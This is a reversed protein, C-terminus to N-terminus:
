AAEPTKQAKQAKQAKAEVEKEWRKKAVEQVTRWKAVKVGGKERLAELASENLKTIKGGPIRDLVSRIARDVSTKTATRGTMPAALEAVEPGYLEGMVTYVAEPVLSEESKEISALVKGNELPVPAKEAYERVIGQLRAVLDEAAKLKAWASGAREPTLAGLIGQELDKDSVVLEHLLKTKSPCYPLAPCFKCWPGEHTELLKDPGRMEVEARLVIIRSMVKALDAEYRDLEGPGLEAVDFWPQGDGDAPVRIVGLKVRAKGYLRAAGLAYSRLQWNEAAPSVDGHGSKYDYVVAMDDLVAHTDLTMPIETPGLDGYQRDKVGPLVRATKTSFDYAIAVEPRYTDPQSAPLRSLDIAAYAARLHEPTMELARELGVEPVRQLFLHLATGALAADTTSRAHPLVESPPCEAAREHSSPSPLPRM